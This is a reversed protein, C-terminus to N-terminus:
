GGGFLPFIVKLVVDAVFHSVMAAILGKRWYLWGWVIGPVGNGILVFLLIPTTLGIIQAAQPLHIAGFMLAALVNATWVTAPGAPSKRTLLTGLWALFTMFGLRLWIEERIGAGLSGLFAALPEPSKIDKVGEPM